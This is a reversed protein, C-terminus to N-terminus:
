ARQKATPVLTEAFFMFGAAVLALGALIALLGDASGTRALASPAEAPASAPPVSAADPAARPTTVEQTLSGAATKPVATAPGPVVAPTPAPAPTPLTAAMPARPTEPVAVPAPASASTPAPRAAPAPAPATVPATGGGTPAQSGPASGLDHHYLGTNPALDQEGPDPEGNGNLDEEASVGYRYSTAGGLVGVPFSVQISNPTHRTVTAEAVENEAGDDVEAILKTGNWETFVVFDFGEDGDTDIGWKFAALKDSFNDYTEALYTVSTGDNAHSTTKLDLKLSVDDPDINGGPAAGTPGPAWMLVVAAVLGILGFRRRSNM